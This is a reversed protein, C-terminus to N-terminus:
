QHENLLNAQLEGKQNNRQRTPILTISAEYLSNPLIGKKEIEQFLKHLNPKM